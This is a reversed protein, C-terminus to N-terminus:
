RTLLKKLDEMLLNSFEYSGLYNLHGGDSFYIKNSNIYSEREVNYNIFPISYKKSLSHYYSYIPLSAYRQSNTSYTPVEILIIKIGDNILIKILDEFKSQQIHDFAANEQSFEELWTPNTIQYPVFGYKYETILVPYSNNFFIKKFSKRYKLVPYRNNILTSRNLENTGLLNSLFVSAPFYESDQEYRRWLLRSDFFFREVAIIMYNPKKYYPKFINTYWLLYFGPNAGSYAFNFFSTGTKNLIEPQIGHLAHSTGIIVNDANITRNLIEKYQLRYWDNPHATHKFRFNLCVLIVFALTFFILTNILLKNMKGKNETVVRASLYM